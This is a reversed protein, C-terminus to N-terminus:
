AWLILLSYIFCFTIICKYIYIFKISFNGLISSRLVEQPHQRGTRKHPQNEHKKRRDFMVAGVCEHLPCEYVGTCYRDCLNQIKFILKCRKDYLNTCSNRNTQLRMLLCTM